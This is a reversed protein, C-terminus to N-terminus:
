PYSYKYAFIGILTMGGIIFAIEGDKQQRSPNYFDSLKPEKLPTFYNGTVEHYRRMAAGLDTFTQEAHHQDRLTKNIFDLRQLRQRNFEDRAKSLKEMALNHRKFEEGHGGFQSFIFNTGSFALANILAGGAMAAITAM